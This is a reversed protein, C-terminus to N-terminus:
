SWFSRGLKGKIYHSQNEKLIHELYAPSVANFFAGGFWINKRVFLPLRHSFVSVAYTHYSLILDESKGSSLFLDFFPVIQCGEELAPLDGCAVYWRLGAGHEAIGDIRSYRRYQKWKTLEFPMGRVLESGPIAHQVQFQLILTIPVFGYM